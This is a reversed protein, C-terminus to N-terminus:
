RHSFYKTEPSRSWRETQAPTSSTSRLLGRCCKGVCHGLVHLSWWWQSATLCCIIFIPSYISGKNAAKVLHPSLFMIGNDNWYCNEFAFEFNFIASRSCPVLIKADIRRPNNGTEASSTGSVSTVYTQENTSGPPFCHVLCYIRRLIMFLSAIRIKLIRNYGQDGPGSGAAAPPAASASSPGPGPSAVSNDYTVSFQGEPLSSGDFPDGPCQWLSISISITM